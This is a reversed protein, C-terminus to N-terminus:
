NNNCRFRIHRYYYIKNVNIKLRFHYCPIKNCTLHFYFNKLIIIQGFLTCFKKQFKASTFDNIVNDM